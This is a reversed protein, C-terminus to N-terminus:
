RPLSAVPCGQVARRVRRSRAAGPSRGATRALGVIHRQLSTMAEARTGIGGMLILNSKTGFSFGMGRMTQSFPDVDEVEADRWRNRILTAVVKRYGASGDILAIRLAM